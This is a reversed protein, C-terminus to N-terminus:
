AQKEPSSDKRRSEKRWLPILLLLLLFLVVLGGVKMFNRAFLVYGQAKPDYKYCMMVLKDGLSLSKGESADLLALRLDRPSFEIGYLYRSVVGDPSLFILGAEHAFDNQGPVFNYNFGVSRALTRVAKYEGTLFHWGTDAGPKGVLPVIRERVPAAEKPGERWDMSVTLLLYEKGPAWELSKLGKAMGDQVLGCLMPCHFYAFNLLIPKGRGLYDGLRVERGSEDLFALNPDVKDGLREDIGAGITAQPAAGSDGAEGPEHSLSASGPFAALATSLLLASLM